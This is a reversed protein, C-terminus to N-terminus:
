SGTRSLAVAATIYSDLDDYHYTGDTHKSYVDLWISFSCSISFSNGPWPSQPSGCFPPVTPSTLPYPLLTSLLGNAAPSLQSPLGASGTTATDTPEDVDGGSDLTGSCGNLGREWSLTFNQMFTSPPIPNAPTPGPPPLNDSMVAHYAHYGVQFADAGAGSLFQCQVGSEGSAGSVTFSDISAGVPRNDAWILHTLAAYPVSATSGPGSTTPMLRIFNFSAAVDGPGPTVGPPVLRDGNVNFVEVALLFRGNGPGPVGTAGPNLTITDFYQHFQGGEWDQDPSTSGVPQVTASQYPIVYLGQVLAGVSNTVTNPGLSQGDTEIGSSGLAYKSWAIPNLIPQMSGVPNGNLDAPAVSMKYYYAGISSSEMGPDFYLMFNLTKCWPANTEGSFDVLGANNPMPNAITNVVSYEGSQTTDTGASPVGYNSHLVHTSTNGIQQLCAFDSGPPPNTTACAAGQLTRINAFDDAAFYQHAAAGDYICVSQGGQKQYVRYFYSRYCRWLIFPYQEYCFQFSGDPQLSADGLKSSTCRCWIPWLSPHAVFYQVADQPTSAELVQLDEHLQANPAFRYDIKGAAFARDVRAALARNIPGPNADPRPPPPFMIPNDALFAKLKAILPAVDALLFPFCCCESEWIEVVGNCIPTCFEPRPFPIRALALNRLLPKPDFIIPFCKSVQGTLCITIPLWRRWWQAAVQIAASREWASLVQEASFKQLLSAALTSPDAVDPGLAITGKISESPHHGLDLKGESAAVIKQAVGRMDIAYLAVNPAQEHPQVGIFSVALEM